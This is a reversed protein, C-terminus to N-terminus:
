SRTVERAVFLWPTAPFARAVVSTHELIAGPHMKFYLSVPPADDDSAGAGRAGCLQVVGRFAEARRAASCMPCALALADMLAANEAFVRHTPSAGALLNSLLTSGSRTAHYIWARPVVFAAADLAELDLAVTADLAAAAILRTRAADRHAALLEALPAVRTTRACHRTRLLDVFLPARHPAAHYPAFDITCVRVLIPGSEQLDVIANPVEVHMPSLGSLDNGSFAERWGTSALVLTAL